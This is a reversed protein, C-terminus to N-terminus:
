GDVRRMEGNIFTWVAKFPLEKHLIEKYIDEARWNTTVIIHKPSEFRLVEPNRILIGTGPVYLGWKNKHSDVVFADDPAGFRRLFMASKGAGGWFAVDDQGFWRSARVMNLAAKKYNDLVTETHYDKTENGVYKASVVMVEGNYSCQINARLGCLDMLTQMSSQTFNHPHEYTWDEIRTSRIASDSCPVEILFRIRKRKVKEIIDEIYKRPDELHELFHRMVILMPTYMEPIDDVDFHKMKYNIGPVAVEDCPDIAYLVADTDLSKLFSCDGAGVELIVGEYQSLAIRRVKRMHEKWGEGENYMRCGSGDYSIKNPDFDSNFVHMCQKCLQMKIPLLELNVSESETRKMDTLSAPHDGADYLEIVRSSHCIPCKM